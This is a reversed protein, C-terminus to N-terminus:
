PQNLWIYLHVVTTVVIALSLPVQFARLFSLHDSITSVLGLLFQCDGSFASLWLYISKVCFFFNFGPVNHVNEGGRWHMASSSEPDFQWPTWNNIAALHHLKLAPASKTCAVRAPISLGSLVPQNSSTQWDTIRVLSVDAGGSGRLYSGLNDNCAGVILRSFPRKKTHLWPAPTMGRYEITSFYFWDWLLWGM